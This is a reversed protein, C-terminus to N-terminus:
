PVPWNPTATNQQLCTLEANLRTIVSDISPRKRPAHNTLDELWNFELQFHDKLMVGVAYIDSALSYRGDNLVEPAMCGSTGKVETCISTQGENLILSFGFDVVKVQDLSMMIFNEPKIDGHIINQDHLRKIEQCTAIALQLAEAETYNENYLNSYLETGDWFTSIIYTKSSIHSGQYYKTKPLPRELHGILRGLKQLLSLEADICTQELSDKEAPTGSIKIAFVKNNIDFGRKVKSFGGEGVLSGIKLPQGNHNLYSHTLQKFDKKALKPPSTPLNSLLQNVVVFEDNPKPSM